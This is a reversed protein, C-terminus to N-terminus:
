EEENKRRAVEISLERLLGDEVESPAGEMLSSAKHTKPFAIFDRITSGGGMLMALRDLGLAIGGHPPAGYEFAELLFGFKRELHEGGLGIVGFLREQLSRHHIRISGSGLETGNCVLDYLHGRVKGPDDELFGLDEELPMSFIHHSPEWDGKEGRVFLPFRNIWLFNFGGDGKVLHRKGLFGRIEGLSRAVVTEEGGVLLLLSPKDINFLSLLDTIGEGTLYRSFPESVTSTDVRLAVLGGAGSLKAVEELEGINRRSFTTGREFSIGRVVGGRSIISSFLEFKGSRFIETCDRIELGFRVDPKDTGYVLMSKSFDTIPFPIGLEIGLVKRFVFELLRETVDFIDSETVFSM